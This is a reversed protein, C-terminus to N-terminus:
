INRIKTKQAIPARFKVQCGPPIIKYANGSSAGPVFKFRLWFNTVTYLTLESNPRKDPHL